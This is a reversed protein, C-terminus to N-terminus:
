PISDQTVYTKFAHYGGRHRLDVREIKKRGEREKKGEERQVSARRAM